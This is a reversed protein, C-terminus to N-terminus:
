FLVEVRPAARDDAEVVAVCESVRDADGGLRDVLYKTLNRQRSIALALLVQDQEAPAIPRVAERETAQPPRGTSAPPSGQQRALAQMDAATARGCVRVRLRPHQKLLKAVSEVYGKGSQTLADSGPAFEVAELSPSGGKTLGDLTAVVLTAPFVAKLAGGVAKGVAPGIDVNPRSPTGTIPLKLAIRGDADALLNVAVALPLGLTGTMREADTGTAPQFALQDLVLDLEGTLDGALTEARAKLDLRGGDLQVGTMAAVYPAYTALQLDDLEAQFGLEVPDSIGVAWGSGSVRTRENILAQLELEIRQIPDSPALDRVEFQSVNVEFTVNPTVLDDHFRIAAPDLLSGHGLRWTIPQDASETAAAAAGPLAVANGASKTPSLNDARAQLATALGPSIRGDADLGETAQFARIAAATRRGMLGDNPGPEYGLKALLRQVRGIDVKAAATDAEPAAPAVDSETPAAGSGDVGAATAVSGPISTTILSRKLFLELGTLSLAEAGLQAPGQLLAGSLEARAIRLSGSEGGAFSGGLANAAVDGAAQWRLQGSEIDVSARTLESRVAGVELLVEPRTDAAPAIAALTTAQADAALEVSLGDGSTNLDLGGLRFGLAQASMEGAPGNIKGASLAVEGSTEVHLRGEGARMAVREVLTRWHEVLAGGEGAAVAIADLDLRLAADLTATGDRSELVLEDADLRVSGVGVDSDPLRIMKGQLGALGTDAASLVQGASLTQLKALLELLTNLSLDVPGSFALDELKLTPRGAIRVSGGAALGVDIDRAALRAIAAAETRDAMSVSIAGLDSSLDGGVSLDGAASIGLDLNLEIQVAETAVSFVGERAYDVGDVDITGEAQLALEGSDSLSGRYRLRATYTGDRRTLDLPGFFRAAKPLDAQETLSDISVSIREAFPTAEGSWNLQIGNVGAKLEFRGPREPEWSRFDTLTLREIEAELEGGDSNHFILRSDQLEFVDIGAKWIGSESAPRATEESAPQTPALLDALPVGNLQILGGPWRSVQLEVGSILLQEISAKRQFLPNVRVVLELEAVQARQSATRGLYVPGLRLQRAWPQIELTELGRYDIELADLQSGVLFRVVHTPAFSVLLGLLVVALAVAIALRLLRRSRRRSQSPVQAPADSPKTV